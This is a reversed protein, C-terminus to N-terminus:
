KLPILKMNAQELTKTHKKVANCMYCATVLNEYSNDGGSFRPVVHDLSIDGQQLNEKGCYRCTYNDRKYINLRKNQSISVGM